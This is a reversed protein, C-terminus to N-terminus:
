RRRRTLTEFRRRAEEQGERTAERGAELAERLRSRATTATDRARTLLRDAPRQPEAPRGRVRSWSRRAQSVVEDRRRWLDPARERTRARVQEGSMPTFLTAIAAGALIGFLVGLVFGPGHGGAERAASSQITENESM